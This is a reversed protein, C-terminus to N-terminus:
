ASAELACFRLIQAHNMEANRSIDLGAFRARQREAGERVREAIRASAEPARSDTLRDADLRPLEIAIPTRELLARMRRQHRLILPASCCCERLPDGSCGCPCPQRTVLLQVGPVQDLMVGLRQIQVPSYAFCDLRDLLLVSHHISRLPRELGRLATEVWALAQQGQVVPPYGAELSAPLPIGAQSHWQRLEEVADSSLPPLLGALARALVTKGNGPSGTFILNHGGCAAVELARKAHEQGCITALDPIPQQM